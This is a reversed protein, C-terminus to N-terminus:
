PLDILIHKLQGLCQWQESINEIFKCKESLQSIVREWSKQASGGHKTHISRCDALFLNCNAEILGLSGGIARNKWVKATSKTNLSTAPLPVEGCGPPHHSCHQLAAEPDGMLFTLQRLDGQTYLLTLCLIFVCIIVFCLAMLSLTLESVVRYGGAIQSHFLEWCFFWDDRQHPSSFLDLHQLTIQTRFGWSHMKSLHRSHLPLHM